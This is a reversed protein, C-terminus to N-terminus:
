RLSVGDPILTEYVRGDLKEQLEEKAKEILAPDQLFDLATAALIKSATVVGRQGVQNGAFKTVIWNHWGIGLPALNIMLTETPAHWSYESVDTVPMSREAVEEIDEVFGVEKLGMGKQITKAVQQEEETFKLVGIDKMNKHFVHAITESSIKEHTATIFEREVQTGTAMAIGNACQDVRELVSQADEAKSLRGICWITARDPVVGPFGGGVDPFSYNLTSEGDPIGPPIHERLYELAQGMLLASDLASVGHWPANGHATKGKFHYKVNFYSSCRSNGPRNITMPHWDLVLDLDKFLGEKALYVKGVCLEEAPSGFVKVTGEQGSKSLADSLAVASMIGGVALLNHGCGHGPGGEVLPDKEVSNPNQSLGPLADYESSFGIVPRGHGKTAVFSTPMGALGTEVQFGHEELLAVLKKSAQFEELPLEPHNWIFDSVQLFSEKHDDIWQLIEEKRIKNEM